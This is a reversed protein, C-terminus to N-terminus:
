YLLTTGYQNCHTTLQYRGGDPSHRPQTEWMAWEWLSAPHSVGFTLEGDNVPLFGLVTSTSALINQLNYVPTFELRDLKGSHRFLNRKPNALRAHLNLTWPKPNKTVTETQPQPAYLTNQFWYNTTVKRSIYARQWRAKARSLPVAATPQFIGPIAVRAKFKMCRWARFNSAKPNLVKPSLWPHITPPEPHRSRFRRQLRVESCNLRLTWSPRM